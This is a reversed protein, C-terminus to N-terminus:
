ANNSSSSSEDSEEDNEGDNGTDGYMETGEDKESSDRTAKNASAALLRVDFTFILFM